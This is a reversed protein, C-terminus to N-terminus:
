RDRTLSSSPSPILYKTSPFDPSLCAKQASSRNQPIQRVTMQQGSLGPVTLIYPLPIRISIKSFSIIHFLQKKTLTGPMGYHKQCKHNSDTKQESLDLTESPDVQIRNTPM